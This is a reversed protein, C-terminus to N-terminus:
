DQWQRWFEVAKIAAPMFPAQSPAVNLVGAQVSYAATSIAVVRPPDNPRDLFRHHDADSLDNMIALDPCQSILNRRFKKVDTAGELRSPDIQKYYEFTWDAHHDLARALDNARRESLSDRAYDAFAPEIKQQFLESPKTLGSM